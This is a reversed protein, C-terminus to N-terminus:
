RGVLLYSVSGVCWGNIYLTSVHVCNYTNLLELNRLGFIVRRFIRLSQLTPASSFINPTGSPVMRLLFPLFVLLSLFSPVRRLSAFFFYNCDYPANVDIRHVMHEKVLCLKKVLMWDGDEM